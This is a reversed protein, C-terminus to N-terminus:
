LALYDDPGRAVQALARSAMLIVRGGEEDVVELQERYASEVHDM